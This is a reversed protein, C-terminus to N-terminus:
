QLVKRRVVIGRVFYSHDYIPFTLINGVQTVNVGVRVNMIAEGGAEAARKRSLRMVEDLGADQMYIYGIELYPPTTPLETTIRVSDPNVPGYEKGFNTLVLVSPNACGAALLVGATLVIAHAIRANM